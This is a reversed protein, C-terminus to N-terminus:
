EEDSTQARLVEILEQASFGLEQAELTAKRAVEMLRHIDRGQGHADTERVFTGRGQHTAIVGARELEMYARAVTNPNIRLEVAMQRVTPLQDGCRLRGTAVAHRIQEVVQAYIPMPKKPDVSVTM